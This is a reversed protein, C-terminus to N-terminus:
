KVVTMKNVAYFRSGDVLSIAELDYFYLGSGMDSANFNLHHEGAVQTKKLLERVREGRLNYVTMSVDAQEPLEYVITTSQNFPNPFAPHLAYTVPTHKKMRATKTSGSVVHVENFIAQCLIDSNHSTVAFGAYVNENMEIKQSGVFSWRSGDSSEYGSLWQGDRELKIWHVLRVM